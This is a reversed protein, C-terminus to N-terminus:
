VLISSPLHTSVKHCRSCKSSNRDFRQREIKVETESAAEAAGCAQAKNPVGGPAEQLGEDVSFFVADFFDLAQSHPM